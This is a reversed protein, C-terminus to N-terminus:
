GLQVQTHKRCSAPGNSWPKLYSQYMIIIVRTGYKDHIGFMKIQCTYDDYDDDDDSDDDVDDDDDDRREDM